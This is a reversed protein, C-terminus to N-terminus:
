QGQRGGAREAHLRMAEDIPIHMIGKDRDVWGYSDLRRDAAGRLRALDTDPSAQLAPGGALPQLGPHSVAEAQRENVVNWASGALLGVAAILLATVAVFAIAFRV